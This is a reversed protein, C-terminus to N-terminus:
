TLSKQQSGSLFKVSAHAYCFERRYKNTQYSFCLHLQKIILFKLKIYKASRVRVKSHVYNLCKSLLNREDEGRIFSIPMGYGLHAM